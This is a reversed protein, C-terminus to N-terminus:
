TPRGNQRSQNASQDICTISFTCPQSAYRGALDHNARRRTGPNLQRFIEARKEGKRSDRIPLLFPAIGRAFFVGRVGSMANVSGNPPVPVAAPEMVARLSGHSGISRGTQARGSADRNLGLLTSCSAMQMRRGLSSNYIVTYAQRRQPVRSGIRSMPQQYGTQKLAIALAQHSSFPMTQKLPPPITRYPSAITSLHDPDLNLMFHEAVSLIRIRGDCASWPAVAIGTIRKSWVFCCHRKDPEAPVIHVTEGIFLGYHCM